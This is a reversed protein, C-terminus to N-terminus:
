SPKWEQRDNHNKTYRSKDERGILINGSLKATKKILETWVTTEREGWMIEIDQRLETLIRKNRKFDILIIIIQSAERM